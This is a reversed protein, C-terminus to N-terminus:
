ISSVSPIVSRLELRLSDFMKVLGSVDVGCLGWRYLFLRMQVAWVGCAFHIQQRVLVQALDARDRKSHLMVLKLAACVRNFDAELARLYGRFIQIRQALLRTAMEPTFGPQAKLFEIDSGDLLRLMPRYRELSLDDIWESTVPLNKGGFGKRILMTLAILLTAAVTAAGITLLETVYM